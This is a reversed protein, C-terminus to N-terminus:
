VALGLDEYIATNLAHNRQRHLREGCMGNCIWAVSLDHVPDVFAIASQMGGHGFSDLTAHEGFGYSLFSQGPRRVPRLFGLGWDVHQMLTEDYLGNRHRHILLEVTEKKLIRTGLLQGGSRLMELFRVLERTTGRGNGGPRCETSDRESNWFPQIEPQEPRTDFMWGIQDGAKLYDARPMGVWSDRMGLPLFIEERVYEPYPRGAIRQIIEGLLFWSAVAHYGAKQGPVWGPELPTECTFRLIEDWGWEPRIQNSGRFGGTHTLVQRLTIGEKGRNGFEPIFRAIPDDLQLKGRELLQGIAVSAVPKCCSYWFLSTDQTMPLGPRSEGVALELLSKGGLSLTLQAGLTRRDKIDKDFLARTRSLSTKVLPPAVSLTDLGASGAASGHM